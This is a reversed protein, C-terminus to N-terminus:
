IKTDVIRTPSDELYSAIRDRSFWGTSPDPCGYTPHSLQVQEDGIGEVGRYQCVICRDNEPAQFTSAHILSGNQTVSSRRCRRSRFM